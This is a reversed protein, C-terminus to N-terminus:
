VLEQLGSLHGICFETLEGDLHGEKVRNRLLEAVRAPALAKRYPREALLSHTIDAITMLRAQTDLKEATLGFPYGSGDLHEHHYSAWQQLKQYSKGASGLLYYTHYVHQKMIARQKKDLAGPHMLISDPVALKGVDHLLGAIEMLKVEKPPLGLRDSLFTAIRSVGASHDGTFPSKSDVLIAMIRALEELQELPLSGRSFTHNEEIWINHNGHQLDLWFGSISSLEDLAEVVEPHFIRAKQKQFYALIDEIQWLYYHDKKLMFDLRDALHLIAPILRIEPSYYDHHELIDSALYAFLETSRVLECGKRCHQATVGPQPELDALSLKEEGTIVGIDHLLASLLLKDLEQKPLGLLKGLRLSTYAVRESHALFTLNNLDGARSFSTVTYVLDAEINPM